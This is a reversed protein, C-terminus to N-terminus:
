PARVTGRPQEAAGSEGALSAAEALAAQAEEARGERALAEARARLAVALNHTSSARGPERALALRYHEIAEDTRGAALLLNGLNNHAPAHGPDGRLALRYEREAGPADGAAALARGMEYHASPLRPELALARAILERQQEPRDDLEKAWNVYAIANDRTVAAARAFLTEDSQWYALTARTSLALAALVACAALPLARAARRPALADTLWWTAAVVPGVLPLYTYRDARAQAGIQVLGCVPLLMVLYWLWGVWLVPRERRTRWALASVACLLAAAALPQWLPIGGRPHPYFVALRSPWLADRLYAVAAVLANAVRDRLPLVELSTFAGGRAQAAIAVVAAVACLAAVPLKERLRAPLDARRSPRRLPWVDLLLLVVPLTVAMAKSLLSLSAAALLATQRAASPAATYRGYAALALFFGLGSLVDKREAIWAVSEVRQPHLAFVAAAFASRLPAGTARALLAYLLVANAAHLAVNVLHHAGADLGFLQVDLMHSLWTLPHWNGVDANTFAWVLGDRTLGRQVPPRETVYLRDDYALFGHGRVPAYVWFTAAVLAPALLHRLAGPWRATPQTVVAPWEVRRAISRKM